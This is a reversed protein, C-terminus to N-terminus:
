DVWEIRPIATPDVHPLSGIHRKYIERLEQELREKDAETQGEALHLRLVPPDGPAGPHVGGRLAGGTLSLIHGPPIGPPNDEIANSIDLLEEPSLGDSM